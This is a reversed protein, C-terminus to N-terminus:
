TGYHACKKPKPRKSVACDHELLIQFSNAVKGSYNTNTTTGTMRHYYQMDQIEQIPLEGPQEQRRDRHPSGSAVAFLACVVSAKKLNM